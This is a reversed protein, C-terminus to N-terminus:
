LGRPRAARSSTLDRDASHRTGRGSTITAIITIVLGVFGVLEPLPNPRMALHSYAHWAEGVTQVVSGGVALLPVRSIGSRRALALAVWATSVLLGAVGIYLLLHVTVLHRVMEGFTQPEFDPHLLWHWFADVALGVLQVIVFAWIWFRSTDLKM